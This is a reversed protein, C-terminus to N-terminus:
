DDALIMKDGFASKVFGVCCIDIMEVIMNNSLHTARHEDCMRLESVAKRLMSESYRMTYCEDQLTFKNILM